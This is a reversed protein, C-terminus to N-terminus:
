RVVLSELDEEDSDELGEMSGTEEADSTEEEEEITEEPPQQQELARSEEMQIWMQMRTWAPACILDLRQEFPVVSDRPWHRLVFALFGLSALVRGGTSLDVCAFLDEKGFFAHGRKLMDWYFHSPPLARWYALENKDAVMCVVDSLPSFLWRRVWGLSYTTGKIMRRFEYYNRCYNLVEMGVEGLGQRFLLHLLWVLCASILLVVM